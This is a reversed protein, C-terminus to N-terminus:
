GGRIGRQRKRASECTETLAPRPHVISGLLLPISTCAVSLLALASAVFGVSSKRVGDFLQGSCTCEIHPGEKSRNTRAKVIKGHCRPM